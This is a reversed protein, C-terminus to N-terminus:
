LKAGRTPLMTSPPRLIMRERSSLEDEFNELAMYKPGWGVSHQRCCREPTLGVAHHSPPPLGNSSEGPQVQLIRHSAPLGRALASHRPRASGHSGRGRARSRAPLSRFPSPALPACIIASGKKGGLRTVYDPVAVGAEKDEKLVRWDARQFYDDM